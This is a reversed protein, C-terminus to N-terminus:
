TNYFLQFPDVQIVRLLGDRSGHCLLSNYMRIDVSNSIFRHITIYAENHVHHHQGHDLDDDTMMIVMMMIMMMVDHDGDDDHHISMKIFDFGDGPFSPNNAKEKNEKEREREMKVGSM